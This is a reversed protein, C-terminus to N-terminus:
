LPFISVDVTPYPMSNPLSISILIGTWLSAVVNVMLTGVNNVLDDSPSSATDSSLTKKWFWFPEIATDWAMHLVCLTSKIKAALFFRKVWGKRSLITPRWVTDSTLRSFKTLNISQLSKFNNKNIVIWIFNWCWIQM